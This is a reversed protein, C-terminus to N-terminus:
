RLSWSMMVLFPVGHRRREFGAVADVEFFGCRAQLANADAEPPLDVRGLALREVEIRRDKQAPLVGVVVRDHDAVGVEDVVVV